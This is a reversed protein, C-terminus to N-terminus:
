RLALEGLDPFKDQGGLSSAQVGESWGGVEELDAAVRHQEDLQAVGHAAFEIDGERQQAEKLMAGEGPHGRGDM